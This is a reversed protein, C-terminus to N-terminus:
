RLAVCLDRLNALVIETVLRREDREVGPAPDILDRVHEDRVGALASQWHMRSASGCLGWARRAKQILTPVEADGWSFFWPRHSSRYEDLAGSVSLLRDRDEGSLETGLRGEFDFAAALRAREGHSDVLVAWNEGHRDPCSSLADLILYGVFVDFAALGAGGAGAPVPPCVDALTHRIAEITYLDSATRRDPAADLVSRGLRRDMWAIGSIMEWGPQSVVSRSISGRVGNWQAWRVEACPVGLAQGLAAIIPETWEDHAHGDEIVRLEKFLWARTRPPEEPNHLWRKSRRGELAPDHAREEWGTVDVASAEM